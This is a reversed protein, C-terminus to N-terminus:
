IDDIESQYYIKKDYLFEPNILYYINKIEMM